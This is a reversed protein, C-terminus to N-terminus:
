QVWVFPKVPSAGANNNAIGITPSALVLHHGEITLLRDLLDSSTACCYVSAAGMTGVAYNVKGHSWVGYKGASQAYIM